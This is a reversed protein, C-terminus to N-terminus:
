ALTVPRGAAIDLALRHIATAPLRVGLPNLAARLCREIHPLPQHQQSRALSQLVAHAYRRRQQNIQRAVDAHTPAKRRAVQAPSAPTHVRAATM